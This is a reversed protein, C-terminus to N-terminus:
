GYRRNKRESRIAMRQKLAERKAHLRSLRAELIEIDSDLQQLDLLWDEWLAEQIDRSTQNM